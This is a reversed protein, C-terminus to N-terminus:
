MAPPVRRHAIVGVRGPEASSLATATLLYTAGVADPDNVAWTTLITGNAERDLDDAGGDVVTWPDNQPHNLNEETPPVNTVQFTVTAGEAFGSATIQAISDFAYDAADTMVVASLLQRPELPEFFRSVAGSIVKRRSNTQKQNSKSATRRVRFLSTLRM